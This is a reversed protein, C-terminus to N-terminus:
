VLLHFSLRCPRGLSRAFALIREDNARLFHREAVLISLRGPADAVPNPFDDPILSEALTVLPGSGSKQGPQRLLDAATLRRESGQYPVGREMLAERVQALTRPFHAVVLALVSDDSRGQVAQRLGWLKAAQNIWIVDDTALVNKPRGSLWDWLGM